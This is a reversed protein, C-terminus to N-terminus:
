SNVLYKKASELIEPDERLMGIARNCAHCLLGRVKGTEHNHDVVEINKNQCIACKGNQLESMRNYEETSLNYSKQLYRERTIDRRKEHYIKDKLLIKDRNEVYYNRRYALMKDLHEDRYEKAYALLREKNEKYYKKNYEDRDFTSKYM